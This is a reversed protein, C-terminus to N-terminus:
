IVMAYVMGSEKWLTVKFDGEEVTYKREGDFRVGVDNQNIVFLSARKGKSKCFLLAADIKGFACERGGLLSLGLRNLDPLRVAYALRRTFWQGVDSVEGARFAMQMGTDLHNALSLAVMEDVTRLHGSFPNLLIVLVLTAMALAPVMTKWSISLFRFPRLRSEPEIKQRARAVLGQPPEIAQMGKKLMADLSLDTQYLAECTQCVQIHEMVQRSAKKDASDQNILWQKFEQCNVM